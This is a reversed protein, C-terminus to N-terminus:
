VPKYLNFREMFFFILARPRSSEAFVPILLCCISKALFPDYCKYSLRWVDRRLSM